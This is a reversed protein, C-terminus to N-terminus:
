RGGVFENPNRCVPYDALVNGALTLSVGSPHLSKRTLANSSSYLVCCIVVREGSCVGRKQFTAADGARRSAQEKGM